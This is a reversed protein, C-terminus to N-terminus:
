TNNTVFSRVKVKFNKECNNIAKVAVSTLYDGTHANGSSDITEVLINHGLDNSISCWIIPEFKINSSGDLIMTVTEGNSIEQCNEFIEGYVSELIHGGIEYESPPRIIECLKM